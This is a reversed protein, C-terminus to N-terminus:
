LVSAIRWGFHAALKDAAAQSLRQTQDGKTALRVGPLPHGM